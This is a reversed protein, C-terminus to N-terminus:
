VLTGGGDVVIVTGTSYTNEMLYLYATALEAAEGVRGLPLRKEEDGYFKMLESESKSDWRPTRSIGPSVANVRTPALEVALARALGEVASQVSAQL